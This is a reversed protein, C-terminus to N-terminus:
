LRYRPLLTTKSHQMRIDKMDGDEEVRCKKVDAVAEAAGGEAGKGEKGQLM